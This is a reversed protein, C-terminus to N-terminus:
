SVCIWDNDTWFLRRHHNFDFYYSTPSRPWNPNALVERVELIEVLNKSQNADHQSRLLRVLKM